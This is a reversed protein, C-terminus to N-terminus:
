PAVNEAIGHLLMEALVLDMREAGCLCTSEGHLTVHSYPPHCVPPGPCEEARAWMEGTVQQGCRRCLPLKFPERHSFNLDHM